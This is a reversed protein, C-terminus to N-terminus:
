FFLKPFLNLQIPLNFPLYFDFKGPQRELQRQGFVIEGGVPGYLFMRMKSVEVGQFSVACFCIYGGVLGCFIMGWHVM